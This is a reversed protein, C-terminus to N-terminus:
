RGPRRGARHVPLTGRHAPGPNATSPRRHHDAAPRADPTRAQRHGPQQARVMQGPVPQPRQLHPGPQVGTWSMGGARPVPHQSALARYEITLLVDAVANFNFPNAAKPLELQWVPDVGMGRSRDWCGDEPEFDFLGTANTPSTFAISEPQRRLTVTDFPGRAVVTRSQPHRFVASM